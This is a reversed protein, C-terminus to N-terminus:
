LRRWGALARRSDGEFRVDTFRDAM